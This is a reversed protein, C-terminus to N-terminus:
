DSLLLMGLVAAPRHSRQQVMHQAMGVLGDGGSVFVSPAAALPEDAQSSLAPKRGSQIM